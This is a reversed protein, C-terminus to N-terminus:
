AISQKYTKIKRKLDADSCYEFTENNPFSITIDTRMESFDLPCLHDPCYYFRNYTVTIDVKHIAQKVVVTDTLDYSSIFRYGHLRSDDAILYNNINDQKNEKIWFHINEEVNAADTFPPISKFEPIKLLKSM